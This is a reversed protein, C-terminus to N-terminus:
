SWGMGKRILAVIMAGLVVLALEVGNIATTSVAPAVFKAITQITGDLMLVAVGSVVFNILM